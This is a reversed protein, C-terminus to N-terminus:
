YGNALEEEKLQNVEADAEVIRAMYREILEPDTLEIRIDDSQYIRLEIGSLDYPSYGYELCFLAAYVRLQDMSAKHDGTKLDHIRLFLGDDFGITDATGYCNDSYYLPQEPTMHYLIADNVYRSLTADTNPLAVGMSILRAALEHYQTGRENALWSKRRSRMKASDYRLWHYGSPSLFAHKGELDSHKNFNM